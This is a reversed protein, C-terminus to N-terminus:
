EIIGGGLLREGQYIAASQGPTIDRLPQNFSLHFRAGAMPTLLAPVPQARYRIKAEVRIPDAPPEGSIYNAQSATLSNGGLADAPGVVLANAAVDLHLVYLPQAAAIGLGRRQGITYGALGQHRGLVNGAEDVIPGPQMADPMHQELFSRYDGGPLFCLDQSEPRDFIPLGRELAIQRVEKKTLGGLPFIAHALQAQTLRQLMYSQDKVPDVGKLLEYEGTQTHRIRAYHGTALFDAHHDLVQHLLYGFKINPNCRICPNPTQGGAYTALFDDVVVEKFHTRCDLLEFPIGLWRAVESAGAVAEDSSSQNAPINSWLRMMVGTVVFGAEVLLAAAVSSDVGGSMAVAIHVDHAERNRVENM